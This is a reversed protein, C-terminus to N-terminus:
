KLGLTHLDRVAEASETRIEDELAMAGVIRGDAVVHLVPRGGRAWTQAEDMPELGLEALLRPGGVSVAQGGVRARAGRGALIEFATVQEIYIYQRRSEDFRR